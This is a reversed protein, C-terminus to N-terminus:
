ELTEVTGEDISQRFLFTGKKNFNVLIFNLKNQNRVGVSFLDFELKTAQPM